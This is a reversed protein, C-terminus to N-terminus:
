YIVNTPDNHAAEKIICQKFTTHKKRMPLHSFIGKIDWVSTIFLVEKVCLIVGVSEKSLQQSARSAPIDPKRVSGPEERTEPRTRPSALGQIWAAPESLFLTGRKLPTHLSIHTPPISVCGKNIVQVQFSFFFTATIPGPANKPNPFNLTQPWFMLPQASNRFFNEIIPKEQRVECPLNIYFAGNICKANCLAECLSYVISICTCSCWKNKNMNFSSHFREICFPVCNTCM